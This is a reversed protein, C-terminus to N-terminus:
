SNKKTRTKRLRAIIDEVRQKESASSNTKNRSKKSKEQPNEEEPGHFNELLADEPLPTKSATSSIYAVQQFLKKLEPFYTQIKKLM